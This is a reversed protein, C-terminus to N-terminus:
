NLYTALIGLVEMEFWQMQGVTVALGAGLLAGATMSYVTSHSITVTLFALLFAIGTVSQSKYRLTHLGNWRHGRADADSRSGGVEASEGRSRPVDCVDYLIAAGMRRWNGGM